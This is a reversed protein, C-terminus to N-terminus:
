IVNNEMLETIIALQEEKSENGTIAGAERALDRYYVFRRNFKTKERYAPDYKYKMKRYNSMYVRMYENYKIRKQEKKWKRLEIKYAKRHRPKMAKVEEPTLVKFVPPAEPEPPIEEETQTSIEPM